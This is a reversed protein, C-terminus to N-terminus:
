VRLGTEIGYIKSSGNTPTTNTYKYSNNKSRLKVHGQGSKSYAIQYYLICLYFDLM